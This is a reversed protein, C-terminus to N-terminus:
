GEVEKDKLQYYLSKFKSMNDRLEKTSMMTQERLFYLVQSKQLKNSENGILITEWNDLLYTLANGVKRENESLHVDTDGELMRHIEDSSKNIMREAMKYSDSNDNGGNFSEPFVDYSTVRNREKTVQINKQILYHKCVTGCYSYAKYRKKVKKYYEYYPDDYSQGCIVCLYKPSNDDPNKYESQFEYESVTNANAVQRDSPEEIKEYSIIVPKFNNIKTLLYSLTDKFSQDFEEDRIYLKYRRIISAIMKSLAPYLIENFIRNKELQNEENIYRVIADEEKEYFYGKKEKTPKRGRTEM